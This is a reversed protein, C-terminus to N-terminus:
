DVDNVYGGFLDSFEELSEFDAKSFNKDAVPVRKCFAEIDGQSGALFAGIATSALLLGIWVPTLCIGFTVVVCRNRICGSAIGLMVAVLSLILVWVLSNTVLESYDSLKGPVSFYRLQQVGIM